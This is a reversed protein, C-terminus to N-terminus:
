GRAPGLVDPPVGDLTIAAAAPGPLHLTVQPTAAPQGTPQTGVLAASGAATVTCAPRLGSGVGAPESLHHCAVSGTLTQTRACVPLALQSLLNPTAVARVICATSGTSHSIAGAVAVQGEDPPLVPTRAEVTAQTLHVRVPGGADIALVTVEGAAALESARSSPLASALPTATSPLPTPGALTSATATPTTAVPATQDTGGARVAALVVGGALLM